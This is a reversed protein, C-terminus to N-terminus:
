SIVPPHRTHFLLREFKFWIALILIPSSLCLQQKVLAEEDDGGDEDDDEDGHEDDDEDGEDDDEWRSERNRLTSGCLLRRGWSSTRTTAHCSRESLSRIYSIPYAIYSISYLIYSIPYHCELEQYSIM